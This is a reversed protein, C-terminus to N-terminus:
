VGFLILISEFRMQHPTSAMLTSKGSGPKGYIWYIGYGSRLWQGLDDWIAGSTPPDIAWELTNSHAQSISDKRDDILRFWLRNLVLSTCERDIIQRTVGSLNNVGDACSRIIMRLECVNKLRRIESELANHGPIDGEQPPVLKDMDSVLESLKRVLSEFQEKDKIVWKVKNLIASYRTRNSDSLQYPIGCQSSRSTHRLRKNQHTEDVSQDFVRPKNSHLLESECHPRKNNHNESSFQHPIEHKESPHVSTDKRSRMCLSKQRLETMLRSSVSTTSTEILDGGHAQRVGYQKKLIHGDQLLQHICDLGQYIRPGLTPDVLRRDYGTADYLKLREAWNLLLAKQIDLRTALLTYDKEISKAAGIQSLLTVCDEFVGVLALIGVALGAAEM